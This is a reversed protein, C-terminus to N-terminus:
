SKENKLIKGKKKDMYDGAQGFGHSLHMKIKVPTRQFKRGRFKGNIKDYQSILSM